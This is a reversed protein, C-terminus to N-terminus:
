ESPAVSNSSMAPRGGCTPGVEIAVSARSTVAGAGLSESSRASTGGLSSSSILLISWDSGLLRGGDARSTAFSSSKRHLSGPTGSATFAMSIWASTGTIEPVRRTVVSTASPTADPSSRTFSSLRSRSNPASPSGSPLSAITACRPRRLARPSSAERASSSPFCSQSRPARTPTAVPRIRTSM